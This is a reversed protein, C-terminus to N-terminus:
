FGSPRVNKVETRPHAALLGPGGLAHGRDSTSACEESALTRLQGRLRETLGSCVPFCWKPHESAERGESM